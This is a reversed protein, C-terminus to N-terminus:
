IPTVGHSKGRCETDCWKVEPSMVWFAHFALSPKTSHFIPFLFIVSFQNRACEVLVKFKIKFTFSTKYKLEGKLCTLALKFPACKLFSVSLGKRDLPNGM